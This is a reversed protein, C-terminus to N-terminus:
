ERHVIQGAHEGRGRHDHISFRKAGLQGPRLRRRQEVHSPREAIRVALLVVQVPVQGAGDVYVQVAFERGGRRREGTAM